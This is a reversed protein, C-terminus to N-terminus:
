SMTCVARCEESPICSSFAPAAAISCETGILVCDGCVLWIKWVRNQSKAAQELPQSYALTAKGQLFHAYLIHLVAICTVAYMYPKCHLSTAAPQGTTTPQHLHSVGYAWQCFSTFAAISRQRGAPCAKQQLVPNCFKCCALAFAQIAALDFSQYVHM